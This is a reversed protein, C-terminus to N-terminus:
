SRYPSLYKKVWETKQGEATVTSAHGDKEFMLVLGNGGNDWIQVHDAVRVYDPLFKMTREYRSFVKDRPVDHGGMKVREQIREYCIDPSGASVFIFDIYYGAAKAKRVFELKDERPAVTEFGFTAGQALVTNRLTECSDMAYSYREVVDPIQESLGRAYNDPNIIRDLSVSLQTCYVLSSKGSGNPGAIVLLKKEPNMM